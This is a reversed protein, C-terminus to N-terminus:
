HVKMNSSSRQSTTYGFTKIKIFKTYKMIQILLLLKSVLNIVYTISLLLSYLIHSIYSYAICLELGQMARVNSFEM